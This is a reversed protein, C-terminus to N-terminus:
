PRIKRIGWVVLQLEIETASYKREKETIIESWFGVTDWNNQDVQDQQQLLIAAMSYKRADTVIM